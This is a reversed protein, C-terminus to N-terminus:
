RDDHAVMGELAIRPWGTMRAAADLRRDPGTAPIEAAAGAAAGTLLAEFRDVVREWDLRSAAAWARRRM